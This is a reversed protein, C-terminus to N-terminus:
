EADRRTHRATRKVAPGKLRYGIEFVPTGDVLERQTIWGRM